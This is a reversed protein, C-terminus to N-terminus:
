DVIENKILLKDMKENLVNVANLLKVLNEETRALREETQNIKVEVIDNWECQEETMKKSIKYAKMCLAMMQLAEAEDAIESLGDAIAPTMVKLMEDCVSTLEQGTKMMNM